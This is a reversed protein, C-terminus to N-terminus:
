GGESSEVFAAHLQDRARATVDKEFLVACDSPDSTPEVHFGAVTVRDVLDAWEARSRESWDAASFTFVIQVGWESPLYNPHTQDNTEDFRPDNPDDVLPQIERSELFMRNQGFVVRDPVQSHARYAVNMCDTGRTAVYPGAWLGSSEMDRVLSEAESGLWEMDDDTWAPTSALTSATPPRTSSPVVSM